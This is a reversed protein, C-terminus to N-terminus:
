KLGGGLPVWGHAESSKFTDFCHMLTTIVAYLIKLIIVIYHSWVFLEATIYMDRTLGCTTYQTCAPISVEHVSLYLTVIFPGADYLLFTALSYAYVM